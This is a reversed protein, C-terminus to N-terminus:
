FMGYEGLIKKVAAAFAPEERLIKVFKPFSEPDTNVRALVPTTLSTAKQYGTWGLTNINSQVEGGIFGEERLRDALPNLCAANSALTKNLTAISVRLAEHEDSAMRHVFSFLCM